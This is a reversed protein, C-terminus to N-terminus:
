WATPVLSSVPIGKFLQMPTSSFKCTAIRGHDLGINPTNHFSANFTSMNEREKQEEFNDAM